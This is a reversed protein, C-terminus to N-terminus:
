DGGKGAGQAVAAHRTRVRKIYQIAEPPMDYAGSSLETIIDSALTDYVGNFQKLRAEAEGAVVQSAIHAPLDATEGLHAMLREMRRAATADM